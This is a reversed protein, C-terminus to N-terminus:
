RGGSAGGSRGGGSSSGGRPAVSPFSRQLQSLGRGSSSAPAQAAGSPVPPAHVSSGPPVVSRGYHGSASPQRIVPPMSPVVPPSGAVPPRAVSPPRAIGPQVLFQRLQRPSDLKGTPPIGGSSPLSSPSTPMGSMHPFTTQLRQLSRNSASSGPAIPIPQVIGSPPAPPVHPIPPAAPVPPVPIGSQVAVVHQATPVYPSNPYLQGARALLGYVLGPGSWPSLSSLLYPDTVVWETWAQHVLADSQAQNLLNARRRSAEEVQDQTSASALAQNAADLAEQLQDVEAKLAILQQRAEENEHLKKIAEAVEDTDVQAIVDVHFVVANDELRASVQQDLINVVGATYTRIEDRSINFDTVVTVSELYLAVQELASRKAAESALRIADEKTDHEGLIHEGEAALTRVDADVRSSLLCVFLFGLLLRFLPGGGIPHRTFLGGVVM